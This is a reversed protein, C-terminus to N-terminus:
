CLKRTLWTLPAASDADEVPSSDFHGRWSLAYLNHGRPLKDFFAEWAWAGGGAGHVMLINGLAGKRERAYVTIAVNDSVSVTFKPYSTIPMPTSLDAASAEAVVDGPPSELGAQLRALDFTALGGLLLVLALLGWWIM